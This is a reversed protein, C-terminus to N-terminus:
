NMEEFISNFDSTSTDEFSVHGGKEFLKSLAARYMKHDSLIDKWTFSVFMKIDTMIDLPNGNLSM